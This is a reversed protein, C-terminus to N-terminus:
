GPRRIAGPGGASMAFNITLDYSVAVPSGGRLAPQFRWQCVAELAAFDLGRATPGAGFVVPDRVAGAEDIVASILISGTSGHKLAQQTFKPAKQSARVLEPKEIEPKASLAETGAPGGAQPPHAARTLGYRHRELLRGASGYPDLDAHYLEPRLGQAAQALCIAESEQGAATLQV